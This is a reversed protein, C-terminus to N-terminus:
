RIVDNPLDIKHNNSLKLDEFETTVNLRSPTCPPEVQIPPGVLTPVISWSGLLDHLHREMLNNFYASIREQQEKTLNTESKATSWVIKTM